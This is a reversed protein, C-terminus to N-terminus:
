LEAHKFSFDTIKVAAFTERGSINEFNTFVLICMVRFQLFHNMEEKQKVFAVTIFYAVYKKLM